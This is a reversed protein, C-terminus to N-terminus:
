WCRRARRVTTHFLFVPSSNSRLFSSGTAASAVLEVPPPALTPAVPPAFHAVLASLMRTAQRTSVVRHMPHRLQWTAHLCDFRRAPSVVFNKAAGPPYWFGRRVDGRV